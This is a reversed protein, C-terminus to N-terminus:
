MFTCKVEQNDMDLSLVEGPYFNDDFLAVINSGVTPPWFDNDVVDETHNDANTVSDSQYGVAELPAAPESQGGASEREGPSDTELSTARVPDVSTSSASDNTPPNSAFSRIALEEDEMTSTSHHSLKSAEM